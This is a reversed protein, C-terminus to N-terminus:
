GDVVASAAKSKARFLATFNSTRNVACHCRASMLKLARASERSSRLQSSDRAHHAAPRVAIAMPGVHKSVRAFAKADGHVVLRHSDSSLHHATTGIQAKLWGAPHHRGQAVRRAQRRRLRAQGEAGRRHESRAAAARPLGQDAHRLLDAANRILSLDDRLPHKVKVEMGRHKVQEDDFVQQFDNIPGAPVGVRELEDLWYKAPKTIFLDELIKMLEVRHVVRDNNKVFRPDKALEPRGLVGCCKEFQLDNGVVLMIDQDACTFVRAPVGGNGSTGRRPPTEGNVLYIQAYHTLSAIVTDMLCVDVHQGEGGNVKRHFLASLIGISANMGTMVDAISPGVKMPGAGPEGDPHGTVSMLGGAAQFIADYGPRAKYPGTQGYGTVSCYIIGPNIKKISRM